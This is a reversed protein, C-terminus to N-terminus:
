DKHYRASKKMERLVKDINRLTRYLAIVVPKEVETFRYNQYDNGNDEMTKDLPKVDEVLSGTVAQHKYIEQNKMTPYRSGQFDSQHLNFPETHPPYTSGQDEVLLDYLADNSAYPVRSLAAKPTASSRMMVIGKGLGGDDVNGKVDLLVRATTADGGVYIATRFCDRVAGSGGITKVLFDQAATILYLDVKRGERLIDAMWGFAEPVNKSIAPLDERVM